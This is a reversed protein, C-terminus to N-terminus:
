KNTTFCLEYHLLFRVCASMLWHLFRKNIAHFSLTVSAFWAPWFFDLIGKLLWTIRETVGCVDNDGFILYVMPTSAKLVRGYGPLMEKREYILQYLTITTPSDGIEEIGNQGRAVWLYCCLRPDNEPEQWSFGLCLNCCKIWKPVAESQRKSTDFCPEFHLELGFLPLPILCLM